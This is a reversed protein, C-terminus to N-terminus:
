ANKCEQIAQNIVVKMNKAMTDELIQRSSKRFGALHLPQMNGGMNSVEELEDHGARVSYSKISQPKLDQVNLEMDAFMKTVKEKVIGSRTESPAEGIGPFTVTYDAELRMDEVAVTTTLVSEDTNFSASKSRRINCLGTVKANTIGFTEYSSDGGNNVDFPIESEGNQVRKSSCWGRNELNTKVCVLLADTVQNPTTPNAVQRFLVRGESPFLGLEAALDDESVRTEPRALTFAVLALITVAKMM